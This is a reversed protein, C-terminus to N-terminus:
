LAAAINTDDGCRDGAEVYSIEGALESAFYSTNTARLDRTRLLWRRKLEFACSMANVASDFEM